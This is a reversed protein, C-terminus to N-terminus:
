ILPPTGASFDVVEFSASRVSLVYLADESGNSVAEHVLVNLSDKPLLKLKTTIVHLYLAKMLVEVFKRCKNWALNIPFEEENPTFVAYYFSM